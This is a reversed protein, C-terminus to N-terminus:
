WRTFASYRAECPAASITSFEASSALRIGTTSRRIDLGTARVEIRAAMFDKDSGCAAFLMASRKTSNPVVIWVPAARHDANM